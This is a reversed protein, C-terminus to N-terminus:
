VALGGPDAWFEKSLLFENMPKTRRSRTVSEQMM